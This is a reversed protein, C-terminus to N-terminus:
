KIVQLKKTIIQDEIMARVFYIGTSFGELDISFEHNGAEIMAYSKSHIKQGSISYISLDVPSRRLMTLDLTVKDVAPNPLLYLSAIGRDTDKSRLQVDLTRTLELGDSERRGTVSFSVNYENGPETFNVNIQRQKHWINQEPEIDDIHMLPDTYSLMWEDLDSQVEIIFNNDESSVLEPASVNLYGAGSAPQNVTLNIPGANSSGAHSLILQAYRNIGTNNPEAASIMIPINNGANGTMPLLPCVSIWDQNFTDTNVQWDQSSTVLFTDTRSGVQPLIIFDHDVRLIDDETKSQNITIIKTVNAATDMLILQSQRPNLDTSKDVCVKVMIDKGQFGIDPDAKNVWVDAPNEFKWSVNSTVYVTDCGGAGEFSLSMPSAFVMPNSPLDFGDDATYLGGGHTAAVVQNDFPRIRLMDTRINGMGENQPTWQPVPLSLNDCEFVGVETAILAKNDDNPDFIVWRVPVRFGNEEFTAKKWNQGGDTTLWVNDIGYNSFSVIIKNEDTPSVDISSIWGGPLQKNDIPEANFTNTPNLVKWLKSKLQDNGRTGIYLTNNNFKLQTPNGIKNGFNMPVPNDPPNEVNVFYYGASTPSFGRPDNTYVTFLINNDPDYDAPNIFHDSENFPFLHIVGNPENFGCKYFNTSTAFNNNAYSAIYVDDENDIFCYGGDGGRVETGSNAENSILHTGNDQSGAFYFDKNEHTACAYYQTVNYGNNRETFSPQPNDLDYSIHVGGDNGFLAKNPNNPFFEIAHHDAHVYLPNSQKVHWYSIQLPDQTPNPQTLDIRILDIGGIFLLDPNQPHFKAILDYFSQGRTFSSWCGDDNIRPPDHDIWQSNVVDRIFIYGDCSMCGEIPPCCVSIADPDPSPIKETLLCLRQGDVSVALESRLMQYRQGPNDPDPPTIEQWSGTEGSDSYFVTGLRDVINDEPNYDIGRLTAYVRNSVRDIELDAGINTFGQGTSEGLVQNWSQGEDSSRLIGEKNDSVYIIGNNDIVIDSKPIVSVGNVATWSQGHDSSTFLGEGRGTSFFGQINNVLNIYGEGTCIYIKDHDSPHQAIGSVSLGASLGSKIRQWQSDPDDINENVWLGGSVSGAFVRQPNAKDILIARTRGGVNNPGRSVWSFSENGPIMQLDNQAAKKELAKIVEPLVEPTPRGLAPDMTMMFNHRAALDPRDYAHKPKSAYAEIEESSAFSYLNSDKQKPQCAILLSMCLLLFYKNM